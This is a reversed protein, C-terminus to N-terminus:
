EIIHIRHNDLDSVVIKGDSLVAASIPGDFEGKGRGRNGFKTIFRGSMEFVQVRDNTTDCVILHGSKSVSLCAPYSFEGNRKGGRGFQFLFGGKKNFVKISPDVEENFIESVIGRDSVLLFKDYQFCHFPFVLSGAEDIKRLLQGWPSFIKISKNRPDAVIINGKGDISLGLPLQLQHDLNGEGGFHCLFEGQSSFVQVRHNTRDVVVINDNHFAIGCPENFKGNLDGKRGFSTLFTGDSKFLQVRHNLRDTVAIEDRENM